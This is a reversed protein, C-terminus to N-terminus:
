AARRNTTSRCKNVWWGEFSPRLIQWGGRDGRPKQATFAGARVLVRIHWQSYGTMKAAEAVTLFLAGSM